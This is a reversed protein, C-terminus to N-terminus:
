ADVVWMSPDDGVGGRRGYALIGNHKHIFVGHHKRQSSRFVSFFPIAPTMFITGKVISRLGWKTGNAINSALGGKEIKDPAGYLTAKKGELRDAIYNYGERYMLTGINYATFRGQLDIMGELNYNGIIKGTEDIKFSGGHLGRDFDYKFGPSFRNLVARQGKMYYAYPVAVALDEGGHYAVYRATSQIASNIAEPISIKGDKVWKKKVNPDFWGAIDRGFADGISASFFDFTISVAEHGLSRGH